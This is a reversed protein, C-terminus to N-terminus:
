EILSSTEVKKTKIFYFLAYSEQDLIGVLGYMMQHLM